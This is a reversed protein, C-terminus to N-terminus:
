AALRQIIKDVLSKAASRNSSCEYILNFVQRYADRNDEAVMDLPDIAAGGCVRDLEAEISVIKSRMEERLDPEVAEAEVVKQMRVIAQSVRGMEAAQAGLSLAGQEIVAMREVAETVALEFERLKSRRASSTRCRRAVDRGIPSLQNVLNAHHANAEFEDRRGNPVIRRDLVHVEGVTWSNFRSEPFIQELITQDGVQINGVRVRVGKVLAGTPIAGKYDHHAFWGVAALGGDVGPLEILTLERVETSSGGLPISDRHPRTIPPGGDITVELEGLPGVARLADTISVGHRFESSFPVPAVQALYAEVASPDLLRDGRQRVIRSIEVEFFSEPHEGAPVTHIDVVAAVVSPLDGSAADALAARLHRGDWTVETVVDEGQARTRFTLFQAYGLAALRGVGRFGRAETGRKSSGGLALLRDVAEDRGIGAGNDRIRVARAAQDLFVEVRGPEKEALLGRARAEDISDAANQLYERYATLPEVYMASSVLELLDKGVRVDRATPSNDDRAM